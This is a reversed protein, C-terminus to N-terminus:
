STRLNLNWLNTELMFINHKVKDIIGNENTDCM